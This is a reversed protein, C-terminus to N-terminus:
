TFGGGAVRDHAIYPAIKGRVFSGMAVGGGEALTKSFPGISISKVNPDNLSAQYMDAAHQVCAAQIDEPITAWGATYDVRINLHGPPFMGYLMGAADDLRWPEQLDELYMELGAYRSRADLAGQLPKVDASPWNGYDGLVQADWGNGLAVVAAALTTLTPYTAFLLSSTSTVGSAVRVLSLGTATSAVTARQNTDGDTNRIQLVETPNTALRSIATVPFEKLMVMQYPYGSGSLYETYTASEFQRRCERRISSSAAKLLEALLTPNSSNLALLTANMIARSNTVLDAM